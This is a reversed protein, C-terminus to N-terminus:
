KKVNAVFTYKGNPKKCYRNYWPEVSFDLLFWKDIKVNINSQINMKIHLYSMKTDYVYCKM